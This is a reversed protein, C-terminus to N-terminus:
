KGGSWQPVYETAKRVKTELSKYDSELGQLLNWFDPSHNLQKIHCLEHLFVHRVLNKPLLLLSRNLSINGLSSCSGWRTAQGRVTVKKFPIAVEQSIERLWPVLCAQAKLHLWRNLVLAIGYVDGVDGEVLLMNSANERLIIRGDSPPNYCVQWRQDIAKLDIREPATLAPTEEIRQLQKGIWSEKAKLIEPLRRPNFGRPVVVELGRQGSVKLIVRKARQSERITYELQNVWTDRM